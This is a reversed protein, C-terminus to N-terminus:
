WMQLVNQSIETRRGGERRGCIRVQRMESMEPQRSTQLANQNEKSIVQIETFLFYSDPSRKMKRHM